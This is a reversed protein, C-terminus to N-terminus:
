KNVNQQVWKTVDLETLPNTDLRLLELARSMALAKPIQM